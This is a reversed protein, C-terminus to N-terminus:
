KERTNQALPCYALIPSPDITEPTESRIKIVVLIFERLIYISTSSPGQNKYM